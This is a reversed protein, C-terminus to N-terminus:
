LVPMLVRYAFLTLLRSPEKKQGFDWEKWAQYVSEPIFLGDSNQKSQIINVMENLAPHNRIERIKSLVTAMHLIDYWIFPLKIKRFDTGMFFMYPHQERSSEWLHLLIDAGILLNPSTYYRRVATLLKVMIFTAYPCPDEKRGPGRFKGLEDDGTCPWGNSRALGDLYLIAKQVRPDESYGFRCLVEVLIPADCLAWTWADEGTGGFHKPINMVVQFPGKNSDHSMIKESIQEIEPVSRDFGLDAMFALKHYILAANKHGNVVQGPWNLSESLIASIRPHGLMSTRDEIVQPDSETLDMLTTRTLYRVWPEGELLWTVIPEPINM